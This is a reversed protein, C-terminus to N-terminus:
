ILSNKLYLLAATVEGGRVLSSTVIEPEPAFTSQSQSAPQELELRAVQTLRPPLAATRETDSLIHSVQGTIPVSDTMLTDHVKCHRKLAYHTNFRRDCSPCCHARPNKHITQVHKRQVSRTKFSAGCIECLFARDNSHVATHELFHSHSRFGKGCQQCPYPPAAGGGGGAREEEEHTIQHQRLADGRKFAKGCFHCLFPRKNKHVNNVHRIFHEKRRTRYRCLECQHSRLGHVRLHRELLHSTSCKYSCQDCEHMQEREFLVRSRFIDGM